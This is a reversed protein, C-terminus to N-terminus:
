SDNPFNREAAAKMNSATPSSHGLTAEKGSICDPYGLWANVFTGLPKDGVWGNDSGTRNGTFRATCVKQIACRRKGQQDLM